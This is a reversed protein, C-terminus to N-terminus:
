LYIFRKFNIPVTQPFMGNRNYGHYKNFYNVNGFIASARPEFALRAIKDATSIIITPCRSYVHDDIVYAPIPMRTNKEFPSYIIRNSNGDPFKIEDDDSYPCGEYWEVNNLDCEPNTCWIEFDFVGEDDASIREIANLSNFYGLNFRGLSAIECGADDIPTLIDSVFQNQTFKGYIEFSLTYYGVHLNKSQIPKLKIVPNDEFLPCLKSEVSNKSLSSKVVIHLKNVEDNLGSNPVSLWSGCIPCKLIQAPEGPNYGLKVNKEELIDIAGGSKLLHIPSVGGGVWLGTSFRTSGYIWDGKIKSFSPRWGISESSKDIRLLEAATVMKLTRRFQQVTLLRLTYRSIIATGAGTENKEYAKLRRLAITFAMIGLYAETKGGGTPIWLLDLYEKNESDEDYLDDLCMLFFAIQFPRWKFEDKNNGWSNQLSMAKNAFCFSTYVLDDDRILEIGNVMRELAFNENSILKNAIKVYNSPVNKLSKLNDDIWLRYLEVLKILVDYLAIPSLNSLKEANLEDSNLLDNDELDFKPLSVPFLPIFDTRLAPKLFKEYDSNNEVRVNYDPWLQNIDIKDVYDVSKWIASCMHGVAVNPKDRYLFGFEKESENIFDINQTKIEESCNIRISPQFLCTDIDAHYDRPKQIYTLDNVMYISFTFLDEKMKLRKIYIKVFGDNDYDVINKESDYNNLTKEIMLEESTNTIERVSEDILYNDFDIDFIEGFSHRKWAPNEPTIEIESGFLNIATKEDREEFYRAWTACIEFQPNPIELSFSLGFSKIMSTADLETSSFSNNIEDIDSDEEASNGELESINEFDPNYTSNESNNRWSQPIVVGCLYEDWPNYSIIEDHGFRPGQVEKMLGEIMKKRMNFKNVM